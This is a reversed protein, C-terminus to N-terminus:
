NNIWKICAVKRNSSEMGSDKKKGDKIQPLWAFFHKEQIQEDHRTQNWKNFVKYAVM